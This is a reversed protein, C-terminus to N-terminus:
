NTTGAGSESLTATATCGTAGGTTGTSSGPNDKGTIGNTADGGACSTTTTTTASRGATWSRRLMAKRAYELILLASM